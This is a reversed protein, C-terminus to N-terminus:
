ERELEPAPAADRPSEEGAEDPRDGEGAPRFLARAGDSHLAEKADQVADHLLRTTLRLTRAYRAVIHNLAASVKPAPLELADVTENAASAVIRLLEDDSDPKRVAAELPLRRIMHLVEDGLGWQRAAASGLAEVDVGLVAFAAAERELGPQEAFMTEGDSRSAPVPQMLQHIQEAEDAFHYRVLLRGLSQLVAILYVAEGDYGAPRLAQALHGALRVRDITVRLALAGEEDLPGPWARLGNAAGRVGNVGILSVVRRLTLVPGNGAIQTGQVRASSLTKLLEFSLAMDPLLHRAIEDTRKSEIATIRQVRTALGPLAPLHGVTRLRDLLLAVPGGDDEAAAERWGTLAGLLTRANRYRLRVQGSTSRNAIARLAEPIPLPTTWPLRIVERGRPAIREIVKGIDASEFVPAGTLLRHLLVGCALVDREAAARHARLATPEAPAARGAGARPAPAPALDHSGQPAVALAMVSAQGRENVLVNHGQVDLHAIGADHGFALGRLVSAIWGATEDIGPQPHQALWEDLTVGARRDVAVFPWHEHVGSEAVAAISPHDLRAARRAMLLWNGIGAPGSPPVRPMSLMTELSTRTDIALWTMTAESKGILRQLAFRGFARAPSSSRIAPAIASPM